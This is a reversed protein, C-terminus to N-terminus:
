WKKLPTYLMFFTATTIPLSLSKGTTSFANSTNRSNETGKSTCTYEACRVGSSARANVCPAASFPKPAITAAAPMAACRAPAIAALVTSGTMPMGTFVIRYASYWGARKDVCYLNFIHGEAIAQEYHEFYDDEQWYLSGEECTFMGDWMGNEMNQTAYYLEGPADYALSHGNFSLEPKDQIEELGLLLEKLDDIEITRASMYGPELKNKVVPWNVLLFLAGMLIIIIIVKKRKLTKIM